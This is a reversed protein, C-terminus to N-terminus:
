APVCSGGFDKPYDAMLNPPQAIWAANRELDAEARRM